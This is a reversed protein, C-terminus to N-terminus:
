RLKRYASTLVNEVAGILPADDGLTGDVLPTDQVPPMAQGLFGQGLAESWDPGCKVVSGSLIIAAPDFMNCMSGLVEGLALGARREAAKAAEDGEAARRDIEAGHMPTGDPLTEDGGLRIYEAIIGPGAAVPELHGTAGCSCHVGAAAICAVHGIHGAENHSGLMIAGDEVYAGGIGTGVAVVLVSPLGKGGGWRAEGLAHAHVDNLVRCPLGTAATVEAALHTGGWGPMLENAFTIDGTRPNVVGASSIGVGLPAEEARAIAGKVQEIVTALVHEGGRMADTPVKEVKSVVPTKGGGVTVLGCAIKTGGIDVGVYTAM